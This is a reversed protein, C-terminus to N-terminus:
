KNLKEMKGNAYLTYYEGCGLYSPRMHRCCGSKGNRPSYNDCEKGCNREGNDAYYPYSTADAKCYFTEYVHDICARDIEIKNVNTEKMAKRIEKKSYFYGLNLDLLDYSQEDLTYLENSM